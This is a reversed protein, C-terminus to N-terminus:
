AAAHDEDIPLPLDHRLVFAAVRFHGLTDLFLFRRACISFSSSARPLGRARWFSSTAPAAAALRDEGSAAALAAADPVSGQAM